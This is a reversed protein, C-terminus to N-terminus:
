ETRLKYNFCQYSFLDIAQLVEYDIKSSRALQEMLKSIRSGRTGRGGSGGGHRTHSRTGGRGWTLMEPNHVSGLPNVSEERTPEMPNEFYETDPNSISSQLTPPPQTGARRKPKRTKIESRSRDSPSPNINGEIDNEMENVNGPEIDTRQNNRRRLNASRGNRPGRLDDADRDTRRRKNLAESQRRSIQAISAQVQGIVLPLLIM